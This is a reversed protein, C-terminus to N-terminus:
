PSGSRRAAPTRAHGSRISMRLARDSQYIQATFATARPVIISARYDVAVTGSRLHASAAAPVVLFALVLCAPLCVRQRGVTM